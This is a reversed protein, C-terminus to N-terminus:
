DLLLMNRLISQGTSVELLLIVVIAIQPRAPPPPCV